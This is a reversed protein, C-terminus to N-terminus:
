LTRVKPMCKYYSVYSSFSLVLKIQPRWLTVDNVNKSLFVNGKIMFISTSESLGTNSMSVFLEVFCRYDWSYGNWKHIKQYALVYGVMLRTDQLETRIM